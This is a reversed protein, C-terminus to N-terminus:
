FQDKLSKPEPGPPDRPIWYSKANANFRIPFADKRTRRMIWGYPTIVGFFLLATAIPSMIASLLLGFRTWWKNLFSLARPFFLAPVLFAAALALAWFRPMKGSLLPLLAVLVFFGAMVLGFSRNSSPEHAQKRKFDEM